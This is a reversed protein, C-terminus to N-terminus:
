HAQILCTWPYYLDALSVEAKISLMKDFSTKLFVHFYLAIVLSKTFAESWEGWLNIRWPSIESSLCFNTEWKCLFTFIAHVHGHALTRQPVWSLLDKHDSCRHSTSTDRVYPNSVGPAKLHILFQSCLSPHSTECSTTKQCNRIARSKLCTLVTFGTLDKCLKKNVCSFNGVPWVIIKQLSKGKFYGNKESKCFWRWLMKRIKAETRLESVSEVQTMVLSATDPPRPASFHRQFAIAARTRPPDWSPPIDGTGAWPSFTNTKPNLPQTDSERVPQQPLTPEAGIRKKWHSQLEAATCVEGIPRPSTTILTLM